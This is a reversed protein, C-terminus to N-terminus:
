LEVPQAKGSSLLNWNGENTDNLHNYKVAMVKKGYRKAFDVTYLTGSKAPCQAVIVIESLAAQLRNRAVLNKPTAKARLPQESIILGDNELIRNVLAENEKPHVLDLGNGLIAITYGGADLCGKHAATDCGLALGSVIIYEDETYKKGLKYAAANGENDAKRAGIIAIKKEADLLDTNGMAFFTEPADTIDLFEKPYLPDQKTITLIKFHKM